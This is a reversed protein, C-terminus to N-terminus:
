DGGHKGHGKGHGKPPKGAPAIGAAQRAARLGALVVSREYDSVRLREEYYPIAAAPQGSSRLAEALNYLAYAYGIEGTRGQDRFAQVAQRLPALAAAAQGGQLLAFGRDNLAVPDPAAAPQAPATAPAPRAARKPQGDSRQRAPAPGAAGARKAGGGKEIAAIAAGALIALAALILLAPLARGHRTRPEAPPLPGPGQGRAALPTTAATSPASAPRFRRERAAADLEDVFGCATPPRQAPDKSMGRALVADLAPPLGPALASAQPPPAEAHQRLQAPGHGEFPRRGSLLEFAVVALAYRDSAATAARGEAQEPSLYAATGLVQGTRTLSVDSAAVAIGFDGVALRGREDLLLNAPKVDRHVIGAGHAADLASAAERLWRLAQARAVPDGPTRLREAVTGAFLEMVIFPRGDQEGVDYVTVVHPHDSVRAATRAERQFRRAADPDAAYAEALLKVAVARRLRADQAAWVSAMGGTAIHRLPRYRAPLSVPAAGTPM